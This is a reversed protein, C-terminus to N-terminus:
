NKSGIIAGNFESAGNFKSIGNVYFNSTMSAPDSINYNIAM